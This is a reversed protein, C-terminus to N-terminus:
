FLLLSFNVEFFQLLIALYVSKSCVFDFPFEWKIKYLDVLTAQEHLELIYGELVVVLNLLYSDTEM